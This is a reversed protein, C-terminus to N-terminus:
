IKKRDYLIHKILPKRPQQNRIEHKLKRTKGINESFGFIGPFEPNFKKIIKNLENCILTESSASESKKQNPKM